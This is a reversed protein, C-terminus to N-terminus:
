GRWWGMWFHFFLWVVLVVFIGGFWFHGATFKSIPQDPQFKEFSWVWASLTRRWDTVLAYIEAALFTGFSVAFWVLWFLHWGRYSPGEALAEVVPATM